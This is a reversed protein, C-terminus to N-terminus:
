KDNTYSRVSPYMLTGEHIVMNQAFVPAYESQYGQPFVECLMSPIVIDPLETMVKTEERFHGFYSPTFERWGLALGAYSQGRSLRRNFIEQYAHGPSTTKRDWDLASKPLNDKKFNPVVDAYLRYCVDTLVTAQLQYNDGNKIKKPNRLPGKYNNVYSHYVIPTCIEVKTPIILVDPGWAVAEFLARAASMTPVPYSVPSDGTDPRSWMATAGAIEMCLSYRYHVM